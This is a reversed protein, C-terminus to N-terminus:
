RGHDRGSGSSTAALAHLEAGHEAYHGSKEAIYDRFREDALEAATLGDVIAFARAEARELRALVDSLARERAWAAERANHVVARPWEAEDPEYGSGFGWDAPLTEGRFMTVIVAEVAETWFGMHGLMEKATWGAPTPRDFDAPSLKDIAEHFRTSAARLQDSLANATM